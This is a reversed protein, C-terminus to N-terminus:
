ALARMGTKRRAKERKLAIDDMRELEEVTMGQLDIDSTPLGMSRRGKLQRYAKMAAQTVEAPLPILPADPHDMHAVLTLGFAVVLDSYEGEPHDVRNTDDDYRMVSLQHILNPDRLEGPRHLVFNRTANFLFTRSQEKTDWGIKNTPQGTVGDPNSKRYFWNSYGRQKMAYIVTHGHNNAEPNAQAENFHWGINCAFGALEEPPVRGYWVADVGLTHRNLVAIPTPDSGPDGESSDIGMIYKQRPHRERYIRLRGREIVEIVPRHRQKGDRIEMEPPLTKEATEKAAQEVLLALQDKDYVPRGSFLFAEQPTSPYEQRMADRDGRKRNKLIHLYWAVQEISLHHAQMMEHAWEELEHPQLDTNRRYGPEEFWPSFFPIFDNLGNVADTWLRHFLNGMGNATSEAIILSTPEEPVAEMVADFTTEAKEWFAVESLHLENATMGRVEGAVEVRISADNEDFHIMRKTSYRTKFRLAEPLHHYFRKSMEFLYEASEIRHALVLSNSNEGLHASRFLLAQALTSFGLQRAKLIIIRPMRGNRRELDIIELLRRQEPKVELPVIRKKKDRIKLCRSFYLDRDDVLKQVTVKAM